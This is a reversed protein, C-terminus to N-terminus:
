PTTLNLKYTPEGEVWTDVLDGNSEHGEVRLKLTFRYTGPGAYRLEKVDLPAGDKSVGLLSSWMVRCEPLERWPSIWTAIFCRASTLGFKLTKGDTSACLEVKSSMQKGDDDTRFDEISCVKGAEPMPAAGATTASTSLAGAVLLSAGLLM